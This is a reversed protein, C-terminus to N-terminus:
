RKEFQAVNVADSDATGAALGTIQRTANAGDGVSVAALTSTQATGALGAYKNTRTEAPNFGKVGKDVTAKSQSGLAVGDAVSAKAEKGLATASAASAESAQGLASAGNATASSKGGVATSATGSSNAQM